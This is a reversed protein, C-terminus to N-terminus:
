IKKMRNRSKYDIIDKILKSDPIYTMGIRRMPFSLQCQKCILECRYYEQSNSIPISNNNVISYSMEAEVLLMNNGCRPCVGYGNFEMVHILDNNM